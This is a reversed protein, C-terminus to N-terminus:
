VDKSELTLIALACWAVHALHSLNSESDIKQGECFKLAHRLMAGYFMESPVNVWSNPTYKTNGFESVRAVESLAPYFKALLELPEKGKTDKQIPENITYNEDYYPICPNNCFM